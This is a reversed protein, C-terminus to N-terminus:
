IQPPMNAIIRVMYLCAVGTLRCYGVTTQNADGIYHDCLDPLTNCKTARGDAKLLSLVKPEGEITVVTATIQNIM